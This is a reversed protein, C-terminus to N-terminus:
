DYRHKRKEILEDLITLYREYREKSFEGSAILPKVACDPESRHLCEGFRCGIRKGKMERYYECLEEPEMQEAELLSFGPTDLVAGGCVHWLQAHRTTHRGRETKRSLGGTELGLQPVIANILSSKGVASQGAFCCISDEIKAKILEVCEGTAASATIVRYGTPGYQAIIGDATGVTAEDSKNLVIVPEVKHKECCIILKDVLLLDPKPASLSAVIILKDLNAVAPRVFLNKRPLIESVYRGEGDNLYEVRDGVVPSIGDKRFRGRARCVVEEGRDNLVTYFGGVGKLILGTEAM